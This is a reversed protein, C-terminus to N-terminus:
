APTVRVLEHEPAVMRAEQHCERVQERRRVVPAHIGRHTGRAIESERLTRVLVAQVRKLSRTGRVLESEKQRMILGAGVRKLSDTDRVLKSVKRLSVM